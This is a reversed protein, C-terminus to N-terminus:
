VMILKQWEDVEADFNLSHTPPTTTSGSNSSNSPRWYSTLGTAPSTSIWNIKGGRNSNAGSAEPLNTERIAYFLLPAIIMTDYDGTNESVNADFEGGACYGWQILTSTTANAGRNVGLDLIREYKLHSFPVQIDYKIGRDIKLEGTAPDRTSERVNFEADGFVENFQVKHNEMLVTDTEQYNFNIDTFPLVSDVTHQSADIYKEIEILGGLKNNVADSYFNDLTDVYIRGYQDDGRDDIFYATLNFMKFLGTLFDIVKM